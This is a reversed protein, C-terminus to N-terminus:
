KISIIKNKIIDYEIKDVIVFEKKLWGKTMDKSIIKNDNYKKALDAPSNEALVLKKLKEYPIDNFVKYMYDLYENIHSDLTYDIQNVSKIINTNLEMYDATFLKILDNTPISSEIYFNYPFLEKDYFGDILYMLINLHELSIHKNDQNFKSIMKKCSNLLIDDSTILKKVKEYKCYKQYSYEYFTYPQTIKPQKGQFLKQIGKFFNNEAKEIEKTPNIDEIINLNKKFFDRSMKKPIIFHKNQGYRKIITYPSNAQYLINELEIVTKDKYLNYVKKLYANPSHQEYDLTLSSKSIYDTEYESEINEILIPYIEDIIPILPYNKSIEFDTKFMYDKNENAQYYGEAFYLLYSLKAKNLQIGDKDFLSILVKSYNIVDEYNSNFQNPKYTIENREYKYFNIPVQTKNKIKSQDIFERNGNIKIFSDYFWNKMFDEKIPKHAKENYIKFHNSYHNDLVLAYLESNSLKGFNEYIDDIDKITEHSLNPKVNFLNNSKYYAELQISVPFNEIEYFNMKYLKKNKNLNYCTFLYMLFQLKLLDKNNDSSLKDIFIKSIEYFSKNNM